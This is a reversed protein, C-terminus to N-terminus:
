PYRWYLVSVARSSCHLTPLAQENPQHNIAPASKNQYFLVAPQNNTAPKNQSFLVTPQHSILWVFLAFLDDDTPATRIRRVVDDDQRCM